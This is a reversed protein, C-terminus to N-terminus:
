ALVNIPFGDILIEQRLVSFTKLVEVELDIILILRRFYQSLLTEGTYSTPAQAGITPRTIINIDFREM